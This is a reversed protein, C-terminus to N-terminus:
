FEVKEFSMATHSVNSEFGKLCSSVGINTLGSAILIKFILETNIKRKRIMWKDDYDKLMNVCAQILQSNM